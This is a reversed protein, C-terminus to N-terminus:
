KLNKLSKEINDWTIHKKLIERTNKMRTSHPSKKSKKWGSKIEEVCEYLKGDELITLAEILWVYMEPRGMNNYIKKLTVNNKPEERKYLKNLYCVDCKYKRRCESPHGNGNYYKCIFHTVVHYQQKSLGEQNKGIEDWWRNDKQGCEKDFSYTKPTPTKLGILKDCVEKITIDM